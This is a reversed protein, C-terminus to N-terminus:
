RSNVLTVSLSAKIVKKEAIQEASLYIEYIKGINYRARMFYQMLENFKKDELTKKDRQRCMISFCDKADKFYEMMQNLTNVNEEFIELESHFKENDVDLVEFPSLRLGIRHM